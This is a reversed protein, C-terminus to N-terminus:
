YRTKRGLGHIELYPMYKRGRSEHNITLAENDDYYIAKANDKGDRCPFFEGPQNTSFHFNEFDFSEFLVEIGRWSYRYYDDPYNHKRWIWPVAMYIRGEPKVLETLVEAMLWPKKVHELVSSCIILDFEGELPGRGLTLDHVVDVGPGDELDLGVYDGGYYSRFDETSGYNKSGVELIRGPSDPLFKTLYIMQNLHGV